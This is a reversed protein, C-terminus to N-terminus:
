GRRSKPKADRLAGREYRWNNLWGWLFRDGPFFMDKVTKAYQPYSEPHLHYLQPEEFFLVACVIYVTCM